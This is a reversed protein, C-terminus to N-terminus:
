PSLGIVGTEAAPGCTYCCNSCSYEHNAGSGWYRTILFNFSAGYCITEGSFCTLPYRGTNGNKLIYVNGNGPWWADRHGSKFSVELDVGTGNQITFTLSPPAPPPEPATAPASDGCESRYVAAMEQKQQDTYIGESAIGNALRQCDIQGRASHNAATLLGVAVLVKAYARM